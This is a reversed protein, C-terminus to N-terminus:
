ASRTRVVCTKKRPGERLARAKIEQTDHRRVLYVFVLLVLPTGYIVVHLVAHIFGASTLAALELASHGCRHLWEMISM